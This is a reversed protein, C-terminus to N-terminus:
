GEPFFDAFVKRWDKGQLVGKFDGSCRGGVMPYKTGEQKYQEWLSDQDLEEMTESDYYRMPALNTPLIMTDGVHIMRGMSDFCASAPHSHHCADTLIGIKKVGAQLALLFLFNGLPMEQNAYKQKDAQAQGSPPMMLDLLVVDFDPRKRSKEEAEAELRDYTEDLTSDRDHKYRNFGVMENEILKLALIEEQVEYVTDTSLAEQAEDYSGVVTLEQDAFLIEAVRRHNPSDDVVLIKM